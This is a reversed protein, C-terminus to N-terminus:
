RVCGKVDGLDETEFLVRVTKRLRSSPPFMGSMRSPAACLFHGPMMAANRSGRGTREEMGNDGLHNMEFSYVPIGRKDFRKGGAFRM